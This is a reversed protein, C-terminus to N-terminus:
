SPPSLTRLSLSRSANRSFSPSMTNRNVFVSIRVFRKRTRSFINSATFYIRTDPGIGKEQITDSRKRGKVFPLIRYEPPSIQGFSFGGTKGAVPWSTGRKWLPFGSEKEREHFPAHGAFAPTGLIGPSPNKRGSSFPSTWFSLPIQGIRKLLLFDGQRSRRRGHRGGKGFPSIRSLDTLGNKESPPIRTPAM